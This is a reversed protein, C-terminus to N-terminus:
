FRASVPDLHGTSQPPVPQSSPLVLPQSNPKAPFIGFIKSAKTQTCVPEKGSRKGSNSAADSSPYVGAEADIGALLHDVDLNASIAESSIPRAPLPLVNSSAAIAREVERLEAEIKREKFSLSEVVAVGTSAGAAGSFVGFIIVPILALGGTVIAAAAVGAAFLIAGGVAALIKPVRMKSREAKLRATIESRKSILENYKKGPEDNIIASEKKAQDARPAPKDTFVPFQIPISVENSQVSDKQDSQRVPVTAEVDRIEFDHANLGCFKNANVLAAELEADSLLLLEPEIGLEDRITNAITTLQVPLGAEIIEGTHDFNGLLGKDIEDLRSKIGAFRKAQEVFSNEKFEDYLEFEDYLKQVQSSLEKYKLSLPHFKADIGRIIMNREYYADKKEEISNFFKEAKLPDHYHYGEADWYGSKSSKSETSILKIPARQPEGNTDTLDSIRIEFESYLEPDTTTHLKAIIKEGERSFSITFDSEEVSDDSNPLDQGALRKHYGCLRQQITRAFGAAEKLDLQLQRTLLDQAIRIKEEPTLEKKELEAAKAEAAYLDELERKLHEYTRFAEMGAESRKSGFDPVSGLRFLEAELERKRKDSKEAELDRAIMQDGYRFGGRLYDGAMKEFYVGDDQRSPSSDKPVHWYGQEDFEFSYYKNRAAFLQQERFTIKQFEVDKDSASM